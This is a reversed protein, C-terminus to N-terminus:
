PVTPVQNENGTYLFRIMVCNRYLESKKDIGVGWFLNTILNKFNIKMDPWSSHLTKKILEVYQTWSMDRSVFQLAMKDHSVFYKTEM